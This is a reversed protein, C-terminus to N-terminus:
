QAPLAATDGADRTADRVTEFKLLTPKRMMRSGCGICRGRNERRLVTVSEAGYCTQCTPCQTVAVGEEIPGGTLGDIQEGWYQWSGGIAARHPRFSQTQPLAVAAEAPAPSRGFFLIGAAILAFSLAVSLATVVRTYAGDKNRERALERLAKMDLPPPRAKEVRPVEDPMCIGRIEYYGRNCRWADSNRGLTANRPVIVPVCGDQFRQFGFNCVWNDGRYNLKGHEPVKIAACAGAVMKYGHSCRASAASAANAAFLAALVVLFAAIGKM